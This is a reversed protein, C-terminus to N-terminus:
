AVAPAVYLSEVTISNKGNLTAQASRGVEIHEHRLGLNEPLLEGYVKEGLYGDYSLIYPVKKENLYELSKILRDKSLGSSYRPNKGSSTGEYPPDMYVLDDPTAQSLIEDYDLSTVKTKNKLLMSTSLLNHRMLSPKRGLRRKDPSQNFEGKSNFRVANKACKSLLFLLKNPEPNSNFDSRIKFYHKVHDEQQAIWLEEYKKALLEPNELIGTWLDTLPKYFDNIWYEDAIDMNAAYVIVAASGAFPEIIRKYKKNTSEFILPALKRKSGQYPFPQLNTVSM